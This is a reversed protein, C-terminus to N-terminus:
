TVGVGFTIAINVRPARVGHKVSMFHGSIDLEL